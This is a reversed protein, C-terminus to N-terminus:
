PNYGGRGCFGVRPSVSIQGLWQPVERSGWGTPRSGPATSGSASAHEEHFVDPENLNEVVAAPPCGPGPRSPRAPRPRPTALDVVALRGAPKCPQAARPERPPFPDDRVRRPQKATTTTSPRVTQRDAPLSQQERFQRRIRRNRPCGPKARRAVGPRRCTARRVLERLQKSVCFKRSGRPAPAAFQLSQFRKWAARGSPTLGAPFRTQARAQAPTGGLILRIRFKKQARGHRLNRLRGEPWRVAARAPERGGLRYLSACRAARHPRRAGRSAEGHFVARLLVRRERFRM